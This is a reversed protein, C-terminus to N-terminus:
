ALWGRSQEVDAAYSFETCEILVGHPQGNSVFGSRRGRGNGLPGSKGDGLDAVMAAVDDVAFCIHHIGEGQEELKRAVDSDSSLPEVLQIFCNGADLYTLRVPPTELEEASVVSLGLRGSFYELAAATDRVAVAVHDLRRFVTV